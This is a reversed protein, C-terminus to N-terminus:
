NHFLNIQFILLIVEIYPSGHFSSVNTKKNYYVLVNKGMNVHMIKFVITKFTKKKGSETLSLSILQAVGFRVMLWTSQHKAIPFPKSFIITLQAFFPSVLQIWNMSLISDLMQM